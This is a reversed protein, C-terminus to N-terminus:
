DILPENLDKKIYASLRNIIDKSGAGYLAQFDVGCGKCRWFFIYCEHVGDKRKVELPECPQFIDKSKCQPCQEVLAM